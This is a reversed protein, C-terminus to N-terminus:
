RNTVTPLSPVVRRRSCGIASSQSSRCRQTQTRVTLAPREAVQPIPSRSADAERDVAIGRVIDGALECQGSASNSWSLLATKRFVAANTPRCHVMSPIGDGSRCDQQRHSIWINSERHQCQAAQLIRATHPHPQKVFNLAARTLRDGYTQIRENCFERQRVFCRVAPPRCSM